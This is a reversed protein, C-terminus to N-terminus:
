RQLNDNFFKLVRPWADRRAAADATATPNDPEWTAPVLRGSRHSANPYQLLVDRKGWVSLRRRAYLATAMDSSPWVADNGAGILLVPADIREVPLHVLPDAAHPGHHCVHPLPKGKWTWAASGPPWSGVVVNSPMACVVAAIKTNITLAALLAAESGRSIGLLGVQEADVEPQAKLWAIAAGFYELPIDMLTSPMGRVGFYAVALGNIGSRALSAAHRRASAIGGESGGLVLVASGQLAASRARYFRGARAPPLQGRQWYQYETSGTGRSECM